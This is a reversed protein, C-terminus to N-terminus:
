EDACYFDDSVRTLTAAAADTVISIEPNHQARFAFWPSMQDPCATCTAASAMAPAAEGGSKAPPPREAGMEAQWAYM